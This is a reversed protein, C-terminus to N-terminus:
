ILNFFFRCSYFVFSLGQGRHYYIDPDKSDVKTAKDFCEFAAEPSGQEMHVSAIKVLSQTFEPVIKVSEELDAKAGAVEGMLFRCLAVILISISKVFLFIRVQIYREPETSRCSWRGM